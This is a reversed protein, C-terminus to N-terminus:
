SSSHLRFLTTTSGNGSIVSAVGTRGVARLQIWSSPMLASRSAIRLERLRAQKAEVEALQGLVFFLGGVRPSRGLDLSSVGLSPQLM